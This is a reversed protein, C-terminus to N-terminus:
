TGSGCFGPSCGRVGGDAFLRQSADARALDALHEVDIGDTDPEVFVPDTPAADGRLSRWAALAEAVGPSMKWWRSHDTKNEDLRVVGHQLDIERWTFAVAESRRM